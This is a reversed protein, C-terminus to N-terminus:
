FEGHRTGESNLSLMIIIRIRVLSLLLSGKAMDFASHARSMLNGITYMLAMTRIRIVLERHNLENKIDNIGNLSCLPNRKAENNNPLRHSDKMDAGSYYPFQRPQFM